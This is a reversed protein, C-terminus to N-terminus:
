FLFTLSFEVKITEQPFFENIMSIHNEFMRDDFTRKASIPFYFQPILNYSNEKAYYNSLVIQSERKGM